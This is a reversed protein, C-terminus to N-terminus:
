DRRVKRAPRNPWWGAAIESPFAREAEERRVLLWGRRRLSESLTCLNVQDLLWLLIARRM